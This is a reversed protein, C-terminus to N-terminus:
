KSDKKGDEKQDAGVPKFWSAKENSPVEFRDGVDYLNGGYFGKKIAEVKM